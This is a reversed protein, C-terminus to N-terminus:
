LARRWVGSEEFFMMRTATPINVGAFTVNFADAASHIILLVRRHSPTTGPTITVARNATLPTDFILIEPDSEPDWVLAADPLSASAMMMLSSSAKRSASLIQYDSADAFDNNQGIKVRTLPANVDQYGHKCLHTKGVLDGKILRNGDVSGSVYGNRSGFIASSSAIADSWVDVITNDQMTYGANDTLMTIGHPSPRYLQNAKLVLGITSECILAGGTDITQTGHNRLTNLAVIIGSSYEWPTGPVGTKTAGSISLGKDATGDTVESDSFNGLLLINHPAYVSTGDTRPAPGMAYGIKCRKARNGIFRLNDGGHTDFGEWGPIDSVYNGIIDGDTSRPDTVLSDIARRTGSVGYGTGSILSLVTKIRNFLVQFEKTSVHMIAGYNVQEIRCRSTMVREAYDYLVGYMGWREIVCDEVEVDTVPAAASTGLVEVAVEGINQALYQPGKIHLGRLRSGSSVTTFSFGPVNTTLFNLLPKRLGVGLMFAPAGDAVLSDEINYIGYPVVVPAQETQTAEWADLFAQTDDTLGGGITANYKFANINLVKGYFGPFAAAPNYNSREMAALLARNLTDQLTAHDAGVLSENWEIVPLLSAGM